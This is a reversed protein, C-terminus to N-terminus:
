KRRAKWVLYRKFAEPAGPPAIEFSGNLLGASGAQYALRYRPEGPLPDSIFTVADAADAHVTYRIVHDESDFYDAKLIGSDSYIVMLDDHRSAPRDATAEYRAENSRVMVRDQVALTFSFAGGEGTPTDVATWEGLLFRLSSFPDTQAAADLCFALSSVFVVFILSRNTHVSGSRGFM